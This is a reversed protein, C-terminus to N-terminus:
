FRIKGEDQLEALVRVRRYLAFIVKMLSLPNNRALRKLQHAYGEMGMLHILEDAARAAFALERHEFTEEHKANKRLLQQGKAEKHLRDYTANVREPSYSCVADVIRRTQQAAGVALLLDISGPSAYEIKAIRPAYEGPVAAILSKFFNVASWGGRWPFARLAWRFRDESAGGEEAEVELAHILSYVQVYQQGFNSLELLGWGGDVLLRYSGAAGHPSDDGNTM